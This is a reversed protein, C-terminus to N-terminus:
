KRETTLEARYLALAQRRTYGYYTRNRFYGQSDTGYINWAGSATREITM